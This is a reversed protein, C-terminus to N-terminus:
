TPLVHRALQSRYFTNELLFPFERLVCEVSTIPVGNSEWATGATNCTVALTTMGDVAGDDGDMVAVNNNQSFYLTVM